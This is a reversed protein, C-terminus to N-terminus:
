AVRFRFIENMGADGRSSFPFTSDQPYNNANEIMIAWQLL